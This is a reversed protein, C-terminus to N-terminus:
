LGGYQREIQTIMTELESIMAANDPSRNIQRLTKRAAEPELITVYLHTLFAWGDDWNPHSELAAELTRVADEFRNLQTYCQALLQVALGDFGSRQLVNELMGVAGEYDHQQMKQAAPAIAASVPVGQAQRREYDRLEEAIESLLGANRESRQIQGAVAWAEDLRGKQGLLSALIGRGIDWHPAAKLLATLMAIGEDHRDLKAYCRALLQCAFDNITGLDLEQKLIRRAGEYDQREFLTYAEDTPTGSLSSSVLLDRIAKGEIAGTSGEESPSNDGPPSQIAPTLIAWQNSVEPAANENLGTEVRLTVNMERGTEPDTLTLGQPMEQIGIFGGPVRTIQLTLQNPVNDAIHKARQASYGTPDRYIILVQGRQNIIRSLLDFM